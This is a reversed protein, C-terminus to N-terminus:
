FTAENDPDFDWNFTFTDGDQLVPWWGAKESATSAEAIQSHSADGNIALNTREDIVKVFTTGRPGKLNAALIDPYDDAVATGAVLKAHLGAQEADLRVEGIQTALHTQADATSPDNADLWEQSIIQTYNLDHETAAVCLEGGTVAISVTLNGTTNEDLEYTWLHNEVTPQGERVTTSDNVAGSFIQTGGVTMTVNVGGSAAYAQGYVKFTRNAM